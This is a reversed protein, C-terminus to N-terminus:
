EVNTRTEERNKFWKFTAASAEYACNPCKYIYHKKGQGKGIWQVLLGISWPRLILECHVGRKIHRVRVWLRPYHVIWPPRGFVFQSRLRLVRVRSSRGRYRTKVSSIAIPYLSIKNM